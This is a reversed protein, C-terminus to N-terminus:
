NENWITQKIVFANKQTWAFTEWHLHLSLSFLVFTFSFFFKLSLQNPVQVTQERLCNLIGLILYLWNLEFFLLLLFANWTLYVNLFPTWDMKLGGYKWWMVRGSIRLDTTSGWLSKLCLRFVVSTFKLSSPTCLM